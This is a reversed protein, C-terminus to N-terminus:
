SGSAETRVFYDPLSREARRLEALRATFFAQKKEDPRSRADDISGEILPRDLAMFIPEIHTPDNRYRQIDRYGAFTTARQAKLAPVHRSGGAGPRYTRLDHLALDLRRVVRSSHLRRGAVM